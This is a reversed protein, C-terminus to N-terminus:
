FKKEHWRDQKHDDDRRNPYHQMVAAKVSRTPTQILFITLVDFLYQDRHIAERLTDLRQLRDKVRIMAIPTVLLVLAAM